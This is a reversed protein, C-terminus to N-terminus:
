SIRFEVPMPSFEGLWALNPNQQGMSFVSILSYYAGHMIHGIMMWGSQFEYTSVSLMSFHKDIPMVWNVRLSSNWHWNQTIKDCLTTTNFEIQLSVGCIVFSDGNERIHILLWNIGVLVIKLAKCIITIDNSYRPRLQTWCWEVYESESGHSSLSTPYSNWLVM